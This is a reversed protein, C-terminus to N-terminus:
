KSAAEERLVHGDVWEKAKEILRVAKAVRKSKVKAATLEAMAQELLEGPGQPEGYEAAQESVVTGEILKQKSVPAPEMFLRPMANELAKRFDERGPRFYHKLVIDTTKHGTVRQVLELPMGATLALTVWTVRFSHFDRLSARRSGDERVAHLVDTDTKARATISRETNRGRVIRCKAGAEIENLYGAVTGKTIECEAMIDKGPRRDMYMEFVRKMRETKECEPLGALYARGRERTQRASLEPFADEDDEMFARTLVKKVRWTIGDPNERYMAAADPFCYKTEREGQAQKALQLEDHLMPFIPIDVTEGTKSTKVTIFYGKLDVDDWKLMCCDGRRMATCIGTIMIPRIFEDKQSEDLIAKLEAPTFPKRFMTETVRTPIEIFPNMAGPPLLYKCTARLLKLTDNWTKNAVGRAEEAHLFGLAMEPSVAALEKAKPYHTRMFTAFRELVSKCQAAYRENPKRRRPINEWEEALSDWLVTKIPAGTKLEYLKEVLRVSDRKTRAEDVRRELEAKAEARTREFIADGKKRLSWGPPPVGDIKVELNDCIRKGNIEYRGYWFERVSGDPNKRIELPMPVEM